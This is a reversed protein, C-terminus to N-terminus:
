KPALSLGDLCASQSAGRLDACNTSESTASEPSLSAMTQKVWASLV